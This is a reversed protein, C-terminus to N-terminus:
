FQDRDQEQRQEMVIFFVCPVTYRRQKALRRKNMRQPPQWSGMIVSSGSPPLRSPLLSPGFMDHPATPWAQVIPSVQQEPMQSGLVDVQAMDQPANPWAQAVLEVQQEPTQSGLLLVQVCGAMHAPSPADHVSPVSQQLRAHTAPVQPAAQRESPVVQVEFPAHQPPLQVPVGAVQTAKFPAQLVAPLLQVPFECHQECSHWPPVQEVPEEKQWWTPSTQAVAVSQQVSFQTLPLPPVSPVQWAFAVLPEPPQVIAPVM